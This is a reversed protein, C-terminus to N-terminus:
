LLNIGLLNKASARCRGARLNKLLDEINKRSLYTWHGPPRLWGQGDGGRLPSIGCTKAAWSGSASLNKRSLDQAAAPLAVASGDRDHIRIDLSRHSGFFNRKLFGGIGSSVESITGLENKERDLVTYQNKTEFDVIIETWEKKQRVFYEDMTEIANRLM